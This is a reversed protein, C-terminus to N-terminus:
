PSFHVAAPSFSTPSGRNIATERPGSQCRNSCRSRAEALMQSRFIKSFQYDTALITSLSLGKEIKVDLAGPFFPTKM